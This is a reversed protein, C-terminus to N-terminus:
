QQETGWPSSKVEGQHVYFVTDDVLVSRDGFNGWISFSEIGSTSDAEIYGAQSLGTQDAAFSYLGKSTFAYWANPETPDFWPFDPESEHIQIPIAFRAPNSDSAPLFSIAHHDYLVESDSGRKGYILSNIEIPSSIDNVDFLSLKVGQYWAGRAFGFDTSGDDPVADKGIGLLLNEGIPQLYDSYGDIELEGAVRPNEQESLDVVYLPDIIRFTVLYARDGFFRAAYLQEGPKGIGDIFDVIQLNGAIEKLVTLRTSSTDNWTDGISTVVNLYAGEDGNEGMRFSRKDESWGLHGDVEGSGRYDIGGDVLAFKHVATKHEPNYFLANRSFVSYEYQTTALYLSRPTMYVTESDGVFCTSDFASPNNIPISTVTILSPNRSADVTGTALYCQDHTVLDLSQQDLLTLKPTLDALTTNALLEDNAQRTASDIAYPSYGAIFPTYRSVLYLTNGIRRSSILEGDITVREEISLNAPDAANLFELEIKNSGWSWVDFWALFVNQGSLTILRDQGQGGENVLYMSEATVFVEDQSSEPQYVGIEEATAQTADLAFTAICNETGCNRLVYLIEGDSKIIDAEDVGAEQVNTVSVQSPSSGAGSDTSAAAVSELARLFIQDSSSFQMGEKLYTEMAAASTFRHLADKEASQVAFEMVTSSVVLEEGQVQYAAYAQYDGPLLELEQFLDFTTENQLQVSQFPSLSDLTADWNDWGNGTRLYWNGQHVAALFLEAQKGIDAPDVSLNFRATYHDNDLFASTFKHQTSTELQLVGSGPAPDEQAQLTLSLLLGGTILLSNSRSSKLSM